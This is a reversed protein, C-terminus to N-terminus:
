KNNSIIKKIFREIVAAVEARTANERPAFRGDSRGLVIKTEQCYKVGEVAWVSIKESDLYKIESDVVEGKTLLHSLNKITVAIQERTIPENPAFKNEGIGKIIKNENAWSVYKSYYQEKDVDSFSNLGSIEGYSSEYALGIYYSTAANVVTNECYKKVAVM